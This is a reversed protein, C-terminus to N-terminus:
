KQLEDEIMENKLKKFSDLNWKYYFKRKKRGAGYEGDTSVNGKHFMYLDDFYKLKLNYKNIRYKLFDEEGYMFTKNNLGDFLKIYNNAFIMCAGHIKFSKKKNLSIPQKLIPVVKDMFVKDLNVLWLLRLVKFKFIVKDVDHPTVFTVFIPNQNKTGNNTLIRPGAVDFGNKFHQQLKLIFDKQTFYTDNNTLVIIDAKLKKKAYEFGLNNGGAFGLNKSSQIFHISAGSNEKKFTNFDGKKSGNDVIVIDVNGEKIYKKLSILCKRTEEIDNYHLIVFVIKPNNTLNERM